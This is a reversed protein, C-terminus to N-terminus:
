QPKTADPCWPLPPLADPLPLAPSIGRDYPPSPLADPAPTAGAFRERHIYGRDALHLRQDYLLRLWPHTTLKDHHQQWLQAATQDIHSWSTWFLPLSDAECALVDAAEARAQALQDTPCAWHGTLFLVARDAQPPVEETLHEDKWAWSRTQILYHGLQSLSRGDTTITHQGSRHKAEILLGLSASGEGNLFTAVLDPERGDTFTRWFRLRCTTQNLAPQNIDLWDGMSEGNEDVAGRLIPGIGLSVPLYRWPACVDSTLLDEFREVADESLEDRMKRRLRAISM